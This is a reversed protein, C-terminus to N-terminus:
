EQSYDKFFTPGSQVFVGCDPHSWITTFVEDSPLGTERSWTGDKFRWVDKWTLVFLDDPQLETMALIRGSILADGSVNELAGDRFRFVASYQGQNDQRGGVWITETSVSGCIQDCLFDPIGVFQEFDAQWGPEGNWLYLSSTDDSALAYVSGSAMSAFGCVLGNTPEIEDWWYGNWIHFDSLGSALVTTPTVAHFERLMENSSQLYDWGNEPDRLVVHGSGMVAVWGDGFTQIGAVPDFHNLDMYHRDWVSGDFHLVDGNKEGAWIDGCGTGSFVSIDRYGIEQGAEEWTFGNEVPTGYMLSGGYGCALIGGTGCAAIGHIRRRLWPSWITQRGRYMGWYSTWVPGEFDVLGYVFGDLGQARTWGFDQSFGYLVFEFSNLKLAFYNGSGYFIEGELFGLEEVAQDGQLVWIRSEEGVRVLGDSGLWIPGCGSSPGEIVQWGAEERFWVGMTGAIYLRGGTACLIGSIEEGPFQYNVKWTHGDYHLLINEGGAYLDQRSFGDLHNLSVKTPSDVTTVTEGDWYVINGNIGVSWVDDPTEGWIDYLTYGSTTPDMVTWGNTPGLVPSEIPEPSCGMLPILVLILITISCCIKM